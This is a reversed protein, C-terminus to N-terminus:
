GADAGLGFEGGDDGVVWRAHGGRAGAEREGEEELDVDGAALFPAGRGGGEVVGVCDWAEGFVVEFFVGGDGCAQCPGAGEAEEAAGEVNVDVEFGDPVVM